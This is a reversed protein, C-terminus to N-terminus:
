PTGGPHSTRQAQLQFGVLSLMDGVSSAVQENDPLERFLWALSGGNAELYKRFQQYEAWTTRHQSRATFLQEDTVNKLKVAALMRVSLIYTFDQATMSAGLPGRAIPIPGTPQFVAEVKPLLRNTNIRGRRLQEVMEDRLAGRDGPRGHQHDVLRLLIQATQSAVRDSVRPNGVATNMARRLQALDVWGEFNLWAWIPLSALTPPKIGAARNRSIAQFLARQERSYVGATSGRGRGLSQRQPSGLLGRRHWDRALRENFGLGVADADAILDKLTGPTLGQAGGPPDEDM